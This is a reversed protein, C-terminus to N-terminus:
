NNKPAGSKILILNVIPKQRFEEAVKNVDELRVSNAKQVEDQVSVLKFTDVDLWLDELSKSNFENLFEAKAKEFENSTIKERLLDTLSFKTTIQTTETTNQALNNENESQLSISFKPMSLKAILIGPLFHAQHVVFTKDKNMQASQNRIRYTLVKALISAAFFNKDNRAAGRLASRAEILNESQAELVQTNTDPPDPQRFTAPIIKDSKRWGGFLRRVAMYVSDSDVNSRISLTANDATLYRDKAFILDALEIAKLSEITGESPRGYPFEGLLRKAVSIDAIYADDKQLEELKAMRASLVKEFNEKTIAPKTIATSLIEFITLIDDSKGSISIEIYDHTCETKIDGELDERVFKKTQESALLIDALLAMMGTKGKLDFASGSHIRLRVSTKNTQKDNWILVKLGNLLREQRPQSQAQILQILCFSILLFAFKRLM